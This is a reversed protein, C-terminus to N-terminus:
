VRAPVALTSSTMFPVAVALPEVGVTRIPASLEVSLARPKLVCYRNMSRPLKPEIVVPASAVTPANPSSVVIVFVPVAQVSPMWQLPSLTMAFPLVTLTSGPLPTVVSPLLSVMVAPAVAVISAIPLALVIVPVVLSATVCLPVASVSVSPAPLVTTSVAAFPLRVALPESRVKSTFPLPAPAVNVPLPSVSNTLPTPAKTFAPVAAVPAVTTSLPVEAVAEITL